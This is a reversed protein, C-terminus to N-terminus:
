LLHLTYYLTYSVEIKIDDKNWKPRISELIELLGERNNEKDVTIDLKPAPAAAM